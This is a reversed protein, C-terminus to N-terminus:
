DKSEYQSPKFVEISDKLGLAYCAGLKNTLELITRIRQETDLTDEDIMVSEISIIYAEYNRLVQKSHNRYTVSALRNKYSQNDEKWDLKFFYRSNGLISSGGQVLNIYDQETYNFNTLSVGAASQTSM